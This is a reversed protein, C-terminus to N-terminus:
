LNVLADKIAAVLGDLPSVTAEESTRLKVEAGNKEFTRSSVVIRLPIGLLDSTAFKEGARLDRDDYLVEIGEALLSEYIADAKAKDEPTMALSVLHVHFPAVEKPWVIGKKDHLIEVISGLLRTSGIGYCGMYIPKKAGTSDQFSLGFADSFRTGLKFINGVEIAKLEEFTVGKWDPSDKTEDIIERNIARGREKALYIIDEGYPTVTQFEHSYKSFAGGSAFTLYTVHGLGCRRFVSRYAAIAKEYFIDLDELTAHFSYLDKMRFERGRLVGSKPRAENRFKTQIQYLAVPLDKYSKVVSGVLPTIAEEHTPGLCYDRDGTGKLKFLVDMTGWRGTTEWNEKPHLAPLLVEQGGIRDM